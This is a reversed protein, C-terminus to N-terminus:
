RAVPTAHAGGPGRMVAAATAAQVMSTGSPSTRRRRRRGIQVAELRQSGGEACRLRRGLYHVLVIYEGLHTTRTHWPCLYATRHLVTCDTHYLTPSMCHNVEVALVDDCGLVQGAGWVEGWM